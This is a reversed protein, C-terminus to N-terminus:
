SGVIVKVFVVLPIIEIVCLYLLLHFISFGYQLYGFAVIKIMRLMFLIGLLGLGVPFLYMASFNSYHLLLCLILMVLGGSYLSFAYQSFSDKTANNEKIIVGLLNSLVGKILVLIDIALACLLTIIGTPLNRFWGMYVSLDTFFIAGCIMYILFFSVSFPRFFSHGERQIQQGAGYSVVSSFVQLSKKYYCLYIYMVLACCIFLSIFVPLNYSEYRILTENHKLALEHEVFISPV